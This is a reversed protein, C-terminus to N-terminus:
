LSFWGELHIDSDIGIRYMGKEMSSLDITVSLPNAHTESYVTEGTSECVITITVMSYPEAFDVTVSRGSLYASVPDNLGRSKTGNPEKDKINRDDDSGAFNLFIEQVIKLPQMTSALSVNVYCAFLALVFVYTNEKKGRIYM